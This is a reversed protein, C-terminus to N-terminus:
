YKTIRQAILYTEFYIERSFIFLARKDILSMISKKNQIYSISLRLWHNFRILIIEMSIFLFFITILVLLNRCSLLTSHIPLEAKIISPLSMEYRILWYSSLM